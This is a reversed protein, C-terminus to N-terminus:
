ANPGHQKAGKQTCMAEGKLEHQRVGKRTSVYEGETPTAEWRRWKGVEEARGVRRSGWVQSGPILLAKQHPMLHVPMTERKM